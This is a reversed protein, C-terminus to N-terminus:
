LFTRGLVLLGDFVWRRTFVDSNSDGAIGFGAVGFALREEACVGIFTKFPLALLYSVRLGAFPESTEQGRVQFIQQGTLGALSVLSLGVGLGVRASLLGPGVRPALGAALEFTLGTASYQGPEGRVASTSPLAAEALLGLEVLGLALDLDVQLVPVPGLLGQGVGAGLIAGLRWRWPRNLEGASPELAPSESVGPLQDLARDVILAATQVVGECDSGEGLVRTLPSGARLLHLVYAGPGRELVVQPAEAGAPAVGALVELRPRLLRLAAILSSEACRPDPEQPGAVWLQSPAAFTLALALSLVARQFIM